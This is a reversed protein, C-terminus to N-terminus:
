NRVKPGHVYCGYAWNNGSGEEQVLSFSPNYGWNGKKALCRHVVKPEMDVLMAKARSGETFFQGLLAQHAQSAIVGEAHMNDYFAQGIQNGCQGIQLFPVAM